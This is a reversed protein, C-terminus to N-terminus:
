GSEVPAGAPALLEDGGGPDDMRALRGRAGMWFAAGAFLAGAVAVTPRPGVVDASWGQALAGLPISATFCMLYLGMARGRIVEDVQLQLTTNLSSAVALYAGGAIVLAALGVAYTPALAFATLSLGYVIIGGGTLRSRALASGPGAVVPAGLVSGIGLSASMVGFAVAGVEFVDDTFVKILQFVPSGLLGLLVVLKVCTAMGPRARVYRITERFQGLVSGPPRTPVAVRTGRVVALAVIVAAFSLANVLFAADAGWAALIVGALAPGLASSANFQASNLTVANLLMSRPVLESVFAQWSPINLGGVVGIGASFAILVWPSEADAAVAAFLGFSIIAMLSQSVLLVLRRPYRDAIVGALPGMLVAPFLGAFAAFGVWTASGTLEYLVFPVTTRQVWSGTNSLVAGTWFVAFDRHRFAAAADRLRPRTAPAAATSM